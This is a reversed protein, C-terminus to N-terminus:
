KTARMAMYYTVKMDYYMSREDGGADIPSIYYKLGYHQVGPSTTDIWVAKYPNMYGSAVAGNYVAQAPRPRIIRVHQQLGRSSKYTDYQLYDNLNTLSNADNLDLVSHVQPAGSQGMESSNPRPIFTVKVMKICYADYLATFEAYSPLKQLQFDLQGKKPVGDNLVQIAQEVYQTRKFFHIRRQVRKPAIRNSRM